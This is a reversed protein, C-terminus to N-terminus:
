CKVFTESIIEAESRFNRIDLIYWFCKKQQSQFKTNLVNLHHRMDRLLTLDWLWMEESFEALVKDNKNM